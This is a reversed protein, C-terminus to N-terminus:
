DLEKRSLIVHLQHPPEGDCILTLASPRRVPAEPRFSVVRM